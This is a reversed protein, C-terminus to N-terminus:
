QSWKTTEILWRVFAPYIRAADFCEEALRRANRGRAEFADTEGRKLEFAAKLAQKLSAVDGAEYHWGCGYHALLQATEGRLSSVMPLGYAAYDALKYPVAVLTNAFMPVIGADAKRLLARLADGTVVGHFRIDPRRDSIAILAKEHEGRGALDLSIAHGEDIMEAVGRVLTELDYGKGMNGVYVLRLPAGAEIKEGLKLVKSSECKLVEGGMEIGHYCRYMPKGQRPTGNACERMGANGCQGPVAAGQRPTGNGCEGLCRKVVELYSDGVASIGDAGQYVRKAMWRLPWLMWAPAVREFTEPWLDMVDIVGTCKLRKCLRRMVWGTSLPPASCLILDPHESEAVAMREWRKAYLWHSILRRLGVNKFYPLTKILRIEPDAAGRRPTGNACEGIGANACERMGANACERMGANACERMGANACERMGENACERMGSNACEGIGANACKVERRVKELHNWDSTWWVVHHGAQALARCLLGYRQLRAGEGPLFDFPNNIWITM